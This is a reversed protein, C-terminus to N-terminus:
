FANGVVEGKSRTSLARIVARNVNYSIFQVSGDVMLFHGGGPHLSWFHYQHLFTPDNVTGNRFGCNGTQCPRETGGPVQDPFRSTPCSTGSTGDCNLEELGLVVDSAGFNPFGGVGAFWWGYDLDTRPPREGVFLTNATGDTVDRFKVGSNVFLM